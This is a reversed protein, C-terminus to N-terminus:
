QKGFRIDARERRSRWQEAPRCRSNKRRSLTDTQTDRWTKSNSEDDKTTQWRWRHFNSDGQGKWTKGCNQFPKSRQM